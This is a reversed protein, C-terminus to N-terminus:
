IRRRYPFVGALLTAVNSLDVYRDPSSKKIQMICIFTVYPEIVLRALRFSETDSYFIQSRSIIFRKNYCTAFGSNIDAHSLILRSKKKLKNM